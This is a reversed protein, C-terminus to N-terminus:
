CLLECLKWYLCSMLGVTLIGTMPLIRQFYSVEPCVPIDGAQAKHIHLEGQLM